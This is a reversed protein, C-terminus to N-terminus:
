KTREYKELEIKRLKYKVFQHAVELIIYGIIWIKVLVM